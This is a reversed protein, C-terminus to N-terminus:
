GGAAKAQIRNQKLDGIEIIKGAAGDSLKEALDQASMKANIHYTAIEKSLKFNV